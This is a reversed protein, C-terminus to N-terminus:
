IRVLSSLSTTVIGVLIATRSGYLIRTFVDRGLEDTGMIHLRSPGERLADWNQENPDWKSIWPAFIAGSFFVLILFLGVMGAKNKSFTRLADGWLSRPKDTRWTISSHKDAIDFKKM